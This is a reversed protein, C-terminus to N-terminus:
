PARLVPGFRLLPIRSVGFLLTVPFFDVVNVLTAALVALNVESAGAAAAVVPTSGMELHRHINELSIVSNGIVRQPSHWRWTLLDRHQHRQGLPVLGRFHGHHFHPDFAAGRLHSARQGFFGPHHRRDAGRDPPARMCRGAADSGQRFRVSRVRHRDGDAQADLIVCRHRHVDNVVQITNSDGGSKMIPIYASKQGDIRVVNYQLQSSDPKAAWTAWRVWSSGVTKIPVSNLDTVNKVLGNSYVFSDYDIKVDGAPLILNSDNVAGVVDM